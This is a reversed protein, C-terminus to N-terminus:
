SEEAGLDALAASLSPYDDVWRGNLESEDRVRWCSGLKEVSYARGAVAAIYLGPRVRVRECGGSSLAYAIRVAQESQPLLAVVCESDRNEVAWYGEHVPVVAYNM